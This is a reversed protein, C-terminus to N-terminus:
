ILNNDNNYTNISVCLIIKRRQKHINNNDSMVKTEVEDDDEDIVKSRKSHPVSLDM